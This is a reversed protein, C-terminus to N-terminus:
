CNYIESWGFADRRGALLTIQKSRAASYIDSLHLLYIAYDLKM